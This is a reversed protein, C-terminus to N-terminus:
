PNNTSSLPEEFQGRKFSTHSTEWNYARHHCRHLPRIFNRFSRCPTRPGFRLWFNVVFLYEFKASSIAMDSIWTLVCAACYGTLLSYHLNCSSRVGTVLSSSQRQRGTTRTSIRLHSSSYSRGGSMLLALALTVLGLSFVTWFLPQPHCDLGLVQWSSRGVLGGM